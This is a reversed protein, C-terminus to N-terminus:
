GAIGEEQPGASPTPTAHQPPAPYGCMGCIVVPNEIPALLKISVGFESCDLNECEVDCAIMPRPVMVNSESM